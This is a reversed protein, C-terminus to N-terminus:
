LVAAKRALTVMAFAFFFFHLCSLTQEGNKMLCKTAGVWCGPPTTSSPGSSAAAASAASSPRTEAWSTQPSGLMCNEMQVFRLHNTCVFSLVPQPHQSDWNHPSSMNKLDPWIAKPDCITIIASAHFEMLTFNGKSKFCKLTLTKKGWLQQLNTRCISRYLQFM